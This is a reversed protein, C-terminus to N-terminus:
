HHHQSYMGETHGSAQEPTTSDVPPTASDIDNGMHHHEHAEHGGGDHGGHAGGHHGAHQVAQQLTWLGFLIIFAAFSKRIWATKVLAMMREALLGSAMVAPLTGLAFALMTLVAQLSSDAAMSYALASYILGCPLWGWVAGLLLAKSLSDVPLLRQSFPQVYRWLVSGARELYVLGRWWDALYLGMAILLFGAIYRMFQLAFYSEIAHALQYFVWAIFLYSSIRGLNYMVIIFFRQRYQNVSTSLTLAGIIGGCMGICHAGGLIGISFAALLTPWDIMM